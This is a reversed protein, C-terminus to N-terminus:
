LSFDYNPKESPPQLFNGQTYNIGLSWLISLTDADEIFQAIVKTGMPKLAEAIERIANQNEQNDSVESMLSHCIKVYNAPIAKLIKAPNDGAGFADIAIESKMDQLASVLIKSEKFNSILVQEKIEFCVFSPSINNTKFQGGLWGPLDKDLISNSSLKIFLRMDAGKTRLESLKKLANLIIWRDLMKGFGTREIRMVFESAPVLENDKNHLATYIQYREGPEGHLSIIPQYLLALRNEKVAERLKLTWREDKEHEGMQADNPKYIVIENADNEWAEDCCNKAKNLIDPVDTTFQDITVAGVAPKISIYDSGSTTMLEGLNKIVNAGFTKLSKPDINSTLVGFSEETLKSLTESETCCKRLANAVNGSVKDIAAIGFKDKIDNFNAIDIQIFAQSIKGQKAANAAADLQDMISRRHYFGTHVDRESLYSLQEELEKTDGGGEASQIVIQICEEGAISVANYSFKAPFTEDGDKRFTLITEGAKKSKSFKKLLDKMKAQDDPAILDMISLGYLEESNSYGFKEIYKENAYTHMGEHLYCIADRSSEMLKQCRTELEDYNAAVEKLQQIHFQTKATSNVVLQLHETNSKNVLTTAGQQMYTVPDVETSKTLAIIPIEPARGNITSVTQELSVENNELAHLIIHPQAEGLLNTLDDADQAIRSRVAIGSAKISSVMEEVDNPSSDVFILQLPHNM